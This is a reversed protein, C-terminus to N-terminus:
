DQSANQIINKVLPLYQRVATDVFANFDAASDGKLTDSIARIALAPVNNTQAVQLIAVTEMDYVEPMRVAKNIDASLEPRITENFKKKGIADLFASGTAIYAEKISPSYSKAIDVLKSDSAYIRNHTFPQEGRLYEKNWQRVDLDSDIAHTGVVIDGIGLYEDLAGAVGTFLILAPDYNYIMKQVKAAAAIKGVETDGVILKCYPKCEEIISYYAAIEQPMAGLILIRSDKNM